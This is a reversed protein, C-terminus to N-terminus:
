RAFEHMWWRSVWILDFVLATFIQIRYDRCCEFCVFGNSGGWSLVLLIAHAGLSSESWGPCGGLRTLTKATRETHLQPCLTEEHPCRLSHDSQTSAWASRLRRQTCLWKIPKTMLRNVYPFSHNSCFAYPTYCCCYRERLNRRAYDALWYCLRRDVLGCCSMM